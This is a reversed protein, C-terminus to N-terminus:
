IHILSLGMFAILSLNVLNIPVGILKDFSWLHSAVAGFLGALLMLPVTRIFIYQLGKLYDFTAGRLAEPWSENSSVCYSEAESISYDVPQKKKYSILPVIILILAFTALLKALAM